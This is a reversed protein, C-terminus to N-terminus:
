AAAMAERHLEGTPDFRHCRHIFDAEATGLQDNHYHGMHYVPRGERESDQDNRFWTVYDPAEDTGKDILVIAGPAQIGDTAMLYERILKM